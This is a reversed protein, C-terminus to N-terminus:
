KVASIPTIPKSPVPMLPPNTINRFVEAFKDWNLQLCNRWPSDPNNPEFQTTGAIEFGCSKYIEVMDTHTREYASLMLNNLNPTGASLSQLYKNRLILVTQMISDRIFEPTVAADRAANAFGATIELATQNRSPTPHSYRKKLLSRRHDDPYVYTFGKLDKASKYANNEEDYKIFGVTFDAETSFHVNRYDGATGEASAKLDEILIEPSSEEPPYDLPDLDQHIALYNDFDSARLPRAASEFRQIKEIPYVPEPAIPTINLERPSGGDIM